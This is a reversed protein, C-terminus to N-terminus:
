YNFFEFEKGSGGVKSSGNYYYGLIEYPLWGKDAWYKSGWQSVRGSSQTGPSHREAGSSCSATNSRKSLPRIALFSISM